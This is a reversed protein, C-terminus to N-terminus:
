YENIYSNRKIKKFYLYSFQNLQRNREYEAYEMLEKELNLKKKIEKKDDLKLILIGNTTEIPEAIQGINLKYIKDYIMKSLQTEKIWGITGGYKATDTISYINASNKFGNKKISKMVEILSEKNEKIQKKELLIESLFYEYQKKQNAFRKKIEEKLYEKNIKVSNNFKNYILQNWLSELKLKLILDDYNLNEKILYNKFNIENNFNNNKIITEIAVNTLKSDLNLDFYKVLEEAKIKERILANKALNNLRDKDMKNLQPNFLLLYKEENKIDINTIINNNVKVKIILDLADSKFVVFLFILLFFIKKSFM